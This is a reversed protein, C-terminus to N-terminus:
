KTPRSVPSRKVPRAGRGPAVVIREITLRGESALLYVYHLAAAESIGLGSALERVSTKGRDCLCSVVEEEIEDLWGPIM